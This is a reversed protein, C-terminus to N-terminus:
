HGAASVALPANGWAQAATPGSRFDHNVASLVPQLTQVQVQADLPQATAYNHWISGSRSPTPNSNVLVIGVQSWGAAEMVTTTRSCGCVATWPRTCCGSSPIL